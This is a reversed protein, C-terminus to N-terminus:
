VVPIFIVLCLIINRRTLRSFIKEAWNLSIDFLVSSEIAWCSLFHICIFSIMEEAWISQSISRNLDSPISWFRNVMKHGIIKSLIAARLLALWFENKERWFENKLILNKTPLKAERKENRKAWRNKALQISKQDRFLRVCSWKRCWRAISFPIEVRISSRAARKGCSLKRMWFIEIRLRRSVTIM